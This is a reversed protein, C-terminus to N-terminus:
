DVDNNEVMVFGPRLQWIAQQHIRFGCTGPEMLKATDPQSKFKAVSESFCSADIEVQFSCKVQDCKARDRVYNRQMTIISDKNSAARGPDFSRTAGSNRLYHLDRPYLLRHHRIVDAEPQARTQIRGTPQTRRPFRQTQQYRVTRDFGPFERTFQVSLVPFALFNFFLNQLLSFLFEDFMKICGPIGSDDQARTAPM